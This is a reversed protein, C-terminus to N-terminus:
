DRETERDREKEGQTQTDREILRERDNQRRREGGGLTHTDRETSRERAYGPQCQAM